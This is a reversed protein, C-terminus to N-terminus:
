IQFSCPDSLFVHEYFCYVEEVLQLFIERELFLMRTKNVTGCYALTIFFFSVKNLLYKLSCLSPGNNLSV